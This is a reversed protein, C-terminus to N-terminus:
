HYDELSTPLLPIYICLRYWDPDWSSLSSTKLNPSPFGCSSPLIMLRMVASSNYGLPIFPLATQLTPLLPCHLLSIYVAATITPAPVFKSWSAVHPCLRPHLYDQMVGEEGKERRRPSRHGFCCFAFPLPTQQQVPQLTSFSSAPIWLDFPIRRDSDLGNGKM